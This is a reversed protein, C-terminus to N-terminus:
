PARGTFSEPRPMVGLVGTQAGPNKMPAAGAQGRGPRPAGPGSFYVSEAAELNPASVVGALGYGRRLLRRELLGGAEVGLFLRLLAILALAAGPAIVGSVALAAVALVVAAVLAAALWLRQSLLWLAGFLFAPWSFCQRVFVADAADGNRPAHISYVAM